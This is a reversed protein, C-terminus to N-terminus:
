NKTVANRSASTTWFLRTLWWAKSCKIYCPTFASCFGQVTVVKMLDICQYHLPKTVVRQWVTPISTCRGRGPSETADHALWTRIERSEESFLVDYDTGKQIGIVFDKSWLINPKWSVYSRSCIGGSFRSKKLEIFDSWDALGESFYLGIAVNRVLFGLSM